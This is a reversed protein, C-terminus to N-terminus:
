MRPPPTAMCSGLGNMVPVSTAPVIVASPGSTFRKLTPSRTQPELWPREAPLSGAGFVDAGRFLPELGVGAPTGSSTGRRCGEDADGGMQTEDLPGAEFRALDDEDVAAVPPTPAM